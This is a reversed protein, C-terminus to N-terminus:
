VDCFNIHIHTVCLEGVTLLDASKDTLSEYLQQATVGDQRFGYTRLKEAWAKTRSYAGLM